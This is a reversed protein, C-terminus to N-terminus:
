KPIGICEIGDAQLQRCKEKASALTEFGAMRLRHFQGKGAVDVTGLYHHYAAAMAPYRVAFSAWYTEAGIASRFAGLQIAFNGSMAPQTAAPAGPMAHGAEPANMPAPMAAPAPMAVPPAMPTKAPAMASSPAQQLDMAPMTPAPLPPTTQAPAPAPAPAPAAKVPTADPLPSAFIDNNNSGSAAPKVGTEPAPTFNDRNNANDGQDPNQSWPAVIQSQPIQPKAPTTIVPKTIVPASVPATKAAPPTTTQQTWNSSASGTSDSQMISAQIVNPDNPRIGRNTVAKRPVNNQGNATNRYQSSLLFDATQTDEATNQSASAQRRAKAMELLDLPRLTSAPQGTITRASGPLNTPIAAVGSVTDASTNLDTNQALAPASASM